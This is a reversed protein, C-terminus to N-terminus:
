PNSIETDNKDKRESFYFIYAAELLAATNIVLLIIYWWKDGKKAAKWLAVGKWPLTWLVLLLLLTNNEFFKLMNNM